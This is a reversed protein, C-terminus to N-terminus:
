RTDLEFGVTVKGDEGASADRVPDLLFLQNEPVDYNEQMQRRLWVGRASALNGLAEPPLDIDTILREVLAQQWEAESIQGNAGAVDARFSELKPTNDSSSYARELRAVRQSISTAEAIGLQDFLRQRRLGSADAEPSVAGRVNLVLAPRDNLAAG